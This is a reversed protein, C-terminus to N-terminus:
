IVKGDDNRFDKDTINNNVIDHDIPIENIAIIKIKEELARQIGL